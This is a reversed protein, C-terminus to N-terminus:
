EWKATLTINIPPMTAGSVFQSGDAKYWGMFTKGEKTPAYPLYVTSKYPQTIPTPTYNGGNSNFTITRNQAELVAYITANGQINYITSETWKTGSGDYTGYWGKINYPEKYSQGGYSVTNLLIEPLEGVAEGQVVEKNYIPKNQSDLATMANGYNFSLTRKSNIKWIAYYTINDTAVAVQNENFKAGSGDQNLCWYDFAYGDKYITSASLLNYEQGKVISQGAISGSGGNLNYSINVNDLTNNTGIFEIKFDLLGTYKGNFFRLKNREAPALYMKHYEIKDSIPNTAGITQEVGQTDAMFQRYKEITFYKFDIYLHPVRYRPIDNINTMSGNGTARSPEETMVLEEFFWMDSYGMYPNGNIYFPRIENAM